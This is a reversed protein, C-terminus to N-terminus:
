FSERCAFGSKTLRYSFVSPITYAQFTKCLTLLFGRKMILIYTYFLERSMLNLISFCARLKDWIGGKIEPM